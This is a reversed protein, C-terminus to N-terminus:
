ARLNIPQDTAQYSIISIVKDALTTLSFGGPSKYTGVVGHSHTHTHTSNTNQLEGTVNREIHSRHEEKCARVCVYVREKERERQRGLRLELKVTKVKSKNDLTSSYKTM